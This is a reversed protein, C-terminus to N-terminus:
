VVAVRDLDFLDIGSDALIDEFRSWGENRVYDAESELIPILQVIGVKRGAEDVVFSFSDDYAFPLSCYLHSFRLGADDPLNLADGRLPASGTRCMGAVVRRLM